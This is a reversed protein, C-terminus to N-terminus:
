RDDGGNSEARANLRRFETIAVCALFSMMVVVALKVEGLIVFPFSAFVGLATLFRGDRRM